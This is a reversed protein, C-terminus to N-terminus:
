GASRLTYFIDGSDVPSILFRINVRDANRCVINHPSIITPKRKPLINPPVTPTNAMHIHTAAFHPSM